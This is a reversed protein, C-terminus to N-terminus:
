IVVTNCIRTPYPYIPVANRIKRKRTEINGVVGDSPLAEEMYTKTLPVPLIEGSDSTNLMEDVMCDKARGVERITLGESWSTNSGYRQVTGV